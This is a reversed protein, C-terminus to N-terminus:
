MTVFYKYKRISIITLFSKLKLNTSNFPMFATTYVCVCVCLNCCIDKYFLRSYSSPPCGSTCNHRCCHPSQALLPVTCVLPMYGTRGSFFHWGVRTRWCSPWLDTFSGKHGCQLYLSVWVSRKRLPDVNPLFCCFKKERMYVTGEVLIPVRSLYSCLCSHFYIQM